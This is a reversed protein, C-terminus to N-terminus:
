RGTVATEVKTSLAKTEEAVLATTKQLAANKSDVTGQGYIIVRQEQEMEYTKLKGYLKELSMTNFDDRERISSVRHEVHHPLTLM